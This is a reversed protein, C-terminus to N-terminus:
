WVYNYQSVININKKINKKKIKIKAGAGKSRGIRDTQYKNYEKELEKLERLWMQEITTVKIKELEGEKEGKQKLLKEYNEEEVSDITM